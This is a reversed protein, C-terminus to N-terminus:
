VPVPSEGDESNEFDDGYEQDSQLVEVSFMCCLRIALKVGMWTYPLGM